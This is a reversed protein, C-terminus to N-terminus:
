KLSRPRITTCKACLFGYNQTGEDTIIYDDAYMDYASLTCGCKVTQASSPNPHTKAPHGFVQRSYYFCLTLLVARSAIHVGDNAPSPTQIYTTPFAWAPLTHYWLRPNSSGMCAQNARARLSCRTIKIRFIPYVFGCGVNYKALGCGWGPSDSDTTLLTVAVPKTAGGGSSSRQLCNCTVQASGFGPIVKTINRLSGLGHLRVRAGGGVGM